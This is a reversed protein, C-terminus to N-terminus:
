FPPTPKSCLKRYLLELKGILKRSNLNKMQSTILGCASVVDSKETFLGDSLSEQAMWKIPLKIRTDEDQRFYNKAYIDESLGFDSVKIVYQSDIRIFFM